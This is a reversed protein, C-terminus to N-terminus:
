GLFDVLPDNGLSAGGMVTCWCCACKERNAAMQNGAGRDDDQEDAAMPPHADRVSIRPRNDRRAHQDDVGVDLLHLVWGAADDPATARARRRGAYFRAVTM